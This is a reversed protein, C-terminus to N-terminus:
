IDAPFAIVSDPSITERPVFRAPAPPAAGASGEPKKEAQGPAGNGNVAAPAAPKDVGTDEVEQASLVTSLATILLATSLAAEIRM